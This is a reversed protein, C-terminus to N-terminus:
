FVVTRVGPKITARVSKTDKVLTIKQQEDGEWRMSLCGSADSAGQFLTRGKGPLDRFVHVWQVPNNESDV